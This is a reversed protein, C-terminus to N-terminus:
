LVVEQFTVERRRSRAESWAVTVTVLLFDAEQFVELGDVLETPFAAYGEVKYTMVGEHLESEVQERLAEVIATWEAIDEATGVFAPNAQDTSWEKTSDTAAGGPVGYVKEFNWRAAQEMVSNGVTVAKTMERGSRVSQTAIVFLSTISLLVTALLGSALLVEVLSYGKENRCPTPQLEM